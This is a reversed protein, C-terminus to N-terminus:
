REATVQVLHVGFRTECVALGGPPTSFAAEEFEQVTQGRSIWGLAGGNRRRWM